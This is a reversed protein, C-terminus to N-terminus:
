GVPQAGRTCWPSIADLFPRVKFLKDHNPQGQPVANAKNNLHLYQTIKDFRDRPMVKKVYFVRLTPNNSWYCSSEPLKNYGFLVHLGFFKEIEKRTTDHWTPDPKLTICQGAYRNTEQVVMDMLEDIVFLQFFDKATGDEAIGSMAGSRSTFAIM